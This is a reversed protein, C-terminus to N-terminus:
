IERPWHRFTTSLDELRDRLDHGIKQHLQEQFEEMKARWETGYSEKLRSLSEHLHRNQSPSMHLLLSMDEGSVTLTLTQRSGKRLIEVSASAGEEFDELADSVDGLDEIKENGIRLIVDGAKFGAKEGESGEEIEEILVGKGGPAGFYEGLQRTLDTLHMGGTVSNRFIHFRPAVPPVPTVSAISWPETKRKGVTVELTKRGDKREVVLNAKTGPKTRQVAKVLDDSDYIARGGFELVIDDEKVGAKDAPSDATVDTVLAGEERTVKLEKAREATMDQIQVGLWGQRSSKEKVVIKKERQTQSCASSTGSIVMALMLGAVLPIRGRM